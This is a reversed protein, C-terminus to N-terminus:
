PMRIRAVKGSKGLKSPGVEIKWKEEASGGCTQGHELTAGSDIIYTSMDLLTMGLEDIPMKSNIVELENHGFKSLGQTSADLGPKGQSVLPKVWLPTPFGDSAICDSTMEVVLAPPFVSFADGVYWAVARTHKMLAAAVISSALAANRASPAKGMLVCHSDYPVPVPLDRYWMTYTAAEDVEGTPIKTPMHMLFVIADLSPIRVLAGNNHDAELTAPHNPAIRKADAALNAFDMPQAGKFLPMSLMAGADSDQAENNKKKGFIRNFV